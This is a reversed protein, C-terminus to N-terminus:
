ATISSMLLCSICSRTRYRSAPDAKVFAGAEVINTTVPGNRFLLYQMGWWAQKVYQDVGYYSHPGNCDYVTYCDLHDQLNEGVGAIDAM